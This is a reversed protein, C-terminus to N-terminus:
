SVKSTNLQVEANTVLRWEGLLDAFEFVTAHFIFIEEIRIIFNM